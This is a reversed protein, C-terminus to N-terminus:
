EMERVARDFTKRDAWEARKGINWDQVASLYGVIRSMVRCPVYRKEADAIEVRQKEALWDPITM